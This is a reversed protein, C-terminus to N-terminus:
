PEAQIAKILEIHELYVLVREQPAAARLKAAFQMLEDLNVRAAAMWASRLEEHLDKQPAAPAPRPPLPQPQRTPALRPQSVMSPPKSWAGPRPDQRPAAPAPQSAAPPCLQSAAPLVPQSAALAPTATAKPAKQKPLAQQPAPRGGRRVPNSRKASRPACPCGRYNAPHGEEGCLVCSPKGASEMTRPCEPTGHDGLCKVCRPRAHCNRASHGYLQCRHCQGISGRRHPKEIYIGSIHCVTTTEFVKKGAPTLPLVVLILDYPKKTRAQYMRHVENVPLGQSALDAKILETTLEKPVGRIVVRLQREEPLAFSHFSIKDGRLFKTLARHDDSSATVVKIGSETNRASIFNLHRRTLEASLTNWSSKDQIFIPPPPRAKPAQPPQQPLPSSSRSSIPSSSAALQRQPSLPAVPKAKQAPQAQTPNPPSSAKRKGKARVTTFGEEEATAQSFEPRSTCPTLPAGSLTLYLESDTMVPSPPNTPTSAGSRAAAEYRAALDNIGAFQQPYNDRLLSLFDSPVSNLAM